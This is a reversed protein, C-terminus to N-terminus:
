KYIIFFVFFGIFAGLADFAIDAWEFSRDKSLFQLIEIAIGLFIAIILAYRTSHRKLSMFANQKSFGIIMVFTLVAFIGTHITKDISAVGGAEPLESGPLLTALLIFLLWIFTLVNHRWFM